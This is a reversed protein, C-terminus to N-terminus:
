VDPGLSSNVGDSTPSNEAMIREEVLNRRESLPRGGITASVSARHMQTPLSGLVETDPSAHADKGKRGDGAENDQSPAYTAVTEGDQAGDDQYVRRNRM